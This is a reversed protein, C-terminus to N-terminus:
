GCCFGTQRWQYVGTVYNVTQRIPDSDFIVMRFALKNPLDTELVWPFQLEGHKSHRMRHGRGQGKRRRSMQRVSRENYDEFRRQETRHGVANEQEPQDDVCSASSVVIAGLVFVAIVFKECIKKKM